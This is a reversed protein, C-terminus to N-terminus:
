SWPGLNKHQRDVVEAKPNIGGMMQSIFVLGGSGENSRTRSCNKTRINEKTHYDNNSQDCKPPVADLCEGAYTRIYYKHLTTLNLQGRRIEQSCPM